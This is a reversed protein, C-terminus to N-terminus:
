VAALEPASINVSADAQMSFVGNDTTLIILDDALCDGAFFDCRIVNIFPTGTENEPHHIVQGAVVERASIVGLTSSAGVITSNSQGVEM